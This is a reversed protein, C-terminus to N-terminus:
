CTKMREKGQDRDRQTNTQTLLMKMIGVVRKKKILINM